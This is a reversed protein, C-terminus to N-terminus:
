LDEVELAERDESSRQRCRREIGRDNPFRHSVLDVLRLSFSEHTVERPTESERRTRRSERRPAVRESQSQAFRGLTHVGEGRHRAEKAGRSSSGDRKFVISFIKRGKKEGERSDGDSSCVAYDRDDKPRMVEAEKKRSTHCGVLHLGRYVLFKREAEKRRM